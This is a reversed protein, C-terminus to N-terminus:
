SDVRREIVDIAEKPTLHYVGFNELMKPIAIPELEDDSLMSIVQSLTRQQSKDDSKSEIKSHNAPLTLLICADKLRRFYNEPKRIWRKGITFLGKEMDVEFQCGGMESFHKKMLIRDWLYDELEKSVDKYIHKFIRDPLNNSLFTLSHALDSLPTYLEPSLEITSRSTTDESQNNLKPIQQRTFDNNYIDSRSWNNKKVYAKLGNFFERSVNKVILSQIRECINDFLEAPDDFVTGEDVTIAGDVNVSSTVQGQETSSISSTPSPLPSAGTNHAAAGINGTNGTNGTNRAARVTVEHWLELFFSDEGWEKITRSVFGASSLWRCLRKLGEVGTIDTAAVNPVARVISYSLNGFSDVASDIRKSYAVLLEAQIAILFRIRNHFLPLLKYRSTVLELLNILKAASKTPKYEDDPFEEDVMEWVDESHMIENYRAEAFTKEVKLWAKFWEKKGTFVEVCGGWEDQGPPTYMHLERLTQDFQLTEFVTHSFIQPSNLLTPVSNNLKRTVAVLLCRIFENKAHYKEFGADDVIAQVAGTLFPSHERITTIVHSFYWEPKDIRNTPRKSDFHYRFRVILPEVMIQMPLLPPLLVNDEKSNKSELPKSVEEVDAPRQLLLLETFAKRFASFKDTTNPPYPVKIPTPWNFADLTQKFKKTLRNKMDEWLTDVCQQLYTDLHSVAHGAEKSNSKINRALHALQTYPVLSKQPSKEILQKAKTSLEDAVVLVKLYQKSRELSDVQQQLKVLKKMLTENESDEIPKESVVISCHDALADELEMRTAQLNELENVTVNFSDLAQQLVKSTKAQTQIRKENQSQENEKLEVLTSNLNELDELERFHSNLFDVVHNETANEDLDRILVEPDYSDTSPM